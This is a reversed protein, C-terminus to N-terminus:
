SDEMQQTLEYYGVIQHHDDRVAVLTFRELKRPDEWSIEDEGQALREYLKIIKRQSEDNHCNLLPKGILDSYGREQYYRVEAKANLYRIIHDNDVFVIPMPISDFSELLKNQNM